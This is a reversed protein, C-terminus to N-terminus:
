LSHNRNGKSGKLFGINVDDYHNKWWRKIRNVPQIVLFLEMILYVVFLSTFTTEYYMAIESYFSHVKVDSNGVDCVRIIAEFPSHPTEVFLWKNSNWIRSGDNTENWGYSDNEYQEIKPNYLAFSSIIWWISLSIISLGLMKVFFTRKPIYNLWMILASIVWLGPLIFLYTGLICVPTHYAFFDGWNRGCAWYMIPSCLENEYNIGFYDLGGGFKSYIAVSSIAIVLSNIIWLCLKLIKKEGKGVRKINHRKIFSIQLEDLKRLNEDAEKFGNKSSEVFWLRAQELDQNTGLGQTYIVGIQNQAEASGQEAAKIFWSLAENYNRKVGEGNYYCFGLSCEAHPNGSIASKEFWKLALKYDKKIGVGRFYRSGVEFQAEDDGNVAKELLENFPCHAFSTHESAKQNVLLTNEKGLPTDLLNEDTEIKKRYDYIDDYSQPRKLRDTQLLSLVFKRITESCSAPMPLALHKDESGDDDIDSPLPPKKNTLLTYLTAGLAYFDTWPGFKELNQEMQERPAYGNTYSVATSTTAGGQASQQKSAGFDILKVVGQKDVMINAPKLDLHLIGEKHAAELADLIQPLLQMVEAESLPKGTRKLRDSLNEGDIYDMVYYATGNEEFLDHVRVIHENNLKRLRRAEKKFKELQSAFTERNDTNSVSVTTNNNDRQSIGRMFFEKIAYQEGFQINTAVYTNGFGGSSLYRDIRYTGHLVTGVRLMNDTNINNRM